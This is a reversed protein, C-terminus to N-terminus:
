LNKKMPQVTLGHFTHIGVIKSGRVAVFGVPTQEFRRELDKAKKGQPECLGIYEKVAKADSDHRNFKWYTECILAAAARADKPGFKRIAIM